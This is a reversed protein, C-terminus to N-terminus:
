WLARRILTHKYTYIYDSIQDENNSYCQRSEEHNCKINETKPHKILAYLRIKKFKKAIFQDRNPTKIKVVNYVRM